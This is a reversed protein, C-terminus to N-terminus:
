YKFHETMIEARQIVGGHCFAEAILATGVLFGAIRVARNNPLLASGLTILSGLILKASYINSDGSNLTESATKFARLQEDCPELGEDFVAQTRRVQSDAKDYDSIARGFVRIGEVM